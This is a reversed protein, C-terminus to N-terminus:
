PPKHAMVPSTTGSTWVAESPKTSGHAGTPRVRRLCGLSQPHIGTHCNPFPVAARRRDPIALCGEAVECVGSARQNKQLDGEVSELNCRRGHPSTIQDERHHSGMRRRVNGRSRCQLRRRPGLRTREEHACSHDIQVILVDGVALEKIKNQAKVLPVPCAEGFCDLLVENM